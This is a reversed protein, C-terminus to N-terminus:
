GVFTEGSSEVALENKVERVGMVKEAAAALADAIEQEGVPGRLTVVGDCSDVNIRELGFEKELRGLETRVRDAITVDDGVDGADSSHAAIYDHAAGQARNSLDAARRAVAESVDGATGAGRALKDRLLARSRRGTAPAFLVGLAAGIGVGLLLWLWKDGSDEVAAAPVHAAVFEEKQKKAKHRASDIRHAADEVAARAQDEREDKMKRASTLAADKASEAQQRLADAKASLTSVVGQLAEGAGHLADAASHKWDELKEPANELAGHLAEQASHLAEGASQQAEQLRSKQKKCFM